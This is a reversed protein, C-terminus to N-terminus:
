PLLPALVMLTVPCFPKLSETLKDAVPKGLPTVAVNVGFLVVVVLLKVKDALLEAVSPVAVTVMVPVAPVKVLVTVILRM